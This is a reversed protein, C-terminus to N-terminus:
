VSASAAAATAQRAAIVFRLEVALHTVSGVGVVFCVTLGRCHDQRTTLIMVKTVAKIGIKAGNLYTAQCIMYDWNTPPNKGWQILKNM